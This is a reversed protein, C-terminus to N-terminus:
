SICCSSLHLRDASTNSIQVTDNFWYQPYYKCFVNQNQSITSLATVSCQLSRIYCYSTAPAVWGAAPELWWWLKGKGLGVSVSVGVDVQEGLLFFCKGAQEFFYKSFYFQHHSTMSEQAGPMWWLRFRFCKFNCKPPVKWIFKLELFNELRCAGRTLTHRVFISRFRFNWLLGIIKRGKSM